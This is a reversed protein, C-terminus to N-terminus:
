GDGSRFSFARTRSFGGVRKSELLIPSDPRVRGFKKLEMIIPNYSEVLRAGSTELRGISGRHKTLTKALTLYFSHGNAFKNPAIWLLWREGVDCGWLAAEVGVGDSALSALLRRGVDVLLSKDM